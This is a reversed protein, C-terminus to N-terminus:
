VGQEILHYWAARFVRRPVTGQPIRRTRQRHDHPVLSWCLRDGGKRNLEALWYYGDGTAEYYIM